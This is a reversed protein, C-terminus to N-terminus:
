ATPVFIASACAILFGGILCSLVSMISTKTFAKLIEIFSFVGFLFFTDYEMMGTEVTDGPPSFTKTDDM